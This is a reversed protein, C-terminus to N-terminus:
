YDQRIDQLINIQTKKPSSSIAWVIIHMWVTFHFWQKTKQPLRTLVEEFLLQLCAKYIM